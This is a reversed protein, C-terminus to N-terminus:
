KVFSVRMMQLDKRGNAFQANLSLIYIGSAFPSFDLAISNSGRRLFIPELSMVEQGLLNFGRLSLLGAFPATYNLTTAPNFPNPFVSVVAEPLHPADTPQTQLGPLGGLLPLLLIDDLAAGMSWNGYFHFGLRLSDAPLQAGLDFWRQEWTLDCAEFAQLDSWGEGADVQLTLEGGAEDKFYVALGLMLGGLPHGDLSDPLTIWPSQLRTCQVAPLTAGQPDLLFAGQRDSNVYAFSSRDPVTFNLSSVYQGLDWRLTDTYCPASDVSDLVASWDAWPNEGEFFQQHAFDSLSEQNWSAGTFPIVWEGNEGSQHRLQFVLSDLHFGTYATSDLDLASFGVAFGLSDEPSVWLTDGFDFPLLFPLEPRRTVILALSDETAEESLNWFRLSSVVTSDMPQLGFDMRSCAAEMFAGGPPLTWLGRANDVLLVFQNQSVCRTAVYWVKSTDAGCDFQFTQWSSPVASQTEVLTFDALRMQLADSGIPASEELVYFEVAELFDPDQSRYDIQFNQRLSDVRMPPSILWDDSPSGDGHYRSGLSWDGARPEYWDDRSLRTWCSGSADADVTTWTLRWAETEFGESLLEDVEFWNGKRVTGAVLSQACLLLIFLISFTSSV